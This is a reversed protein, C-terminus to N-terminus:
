YNSKTLIKVLGITKSVMIVDTVQKLAEIRQNKDDSNLGEKAQNMKQELGSENDSEIETFFMDLLTKSEDRIWSM